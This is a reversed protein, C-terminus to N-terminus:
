FSLFFLPPSIVDPVTYCKCKYKIQHLARCNHKNNNNKKRKKKKWMSGRIKIPENKGKILSSLAIWGWNGQSVCSDKMPPRIFLQDVAGVPATNELVNEYHINWFSCIIAQIGEYSRKRVFAKEGKKYAVSLIFSLSTFFLFLHSGLLKSICFVNKFNNENFTIGRVTPNFRFM